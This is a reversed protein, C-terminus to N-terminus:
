NEKNKHVRARFVKIHKENSINKLVLKKLNSEFMNIDSYTKLIGNAAISIKGTEESLVISIADSNETIGIAARHRTGLDRNINQNRTLPM